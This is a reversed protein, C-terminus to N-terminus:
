RVLILLTEFSVTDIGSSFYSCLLLAGAFM